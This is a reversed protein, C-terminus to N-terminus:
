SVSFVIPPLSTLDPTLVQQSSHWVWDTGNGFTPEEQRRALALDVQMYSKSSTTRSRKTSTHAPKRRANERIMADLDSLPSTDNALAAVGFAGHGFNRGTFNTQQAPQDSTMTHAVQVSPFISVGDEENRMEDNQVLRYGRDGLNALEEAVVQQPEAIELELCYPPTLEM